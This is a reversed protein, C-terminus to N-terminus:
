NPASEERGRERSVSKLWRVRVCGDLGCSHGAEGGDDGGRGGFVFRPELGLARRVDEVAVKVGEGEGEGEKSKDKGEGEGEGEGGGQEVSTTTATTATPATTATATM